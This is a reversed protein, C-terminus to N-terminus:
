RLSREIETQLLELARGNTDGAPLKGVYQQMFKHYADLSGEYAAYAKAVPEYLKQLSPLEKDILAGVGKAQQSLEKYLEIVSVPNEGTKRSSERLQKAKGDFDSSLLGVQERIASNQRELARRALLYPKFAERISQLLPQRGARMESRLKKIEPTEDQSPL